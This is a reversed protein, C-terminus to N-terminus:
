FEFNKWLIFNLYFVSKLFVCCLEILVCLDSGVFEVVRVFGGVIVSREIVFLRVM